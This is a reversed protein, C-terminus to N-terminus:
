PQLCVSQISDPRTLNLRVWLSAAFVWGNNKYPARCLQWEAQTSDLRVWCCSCQLCMTLKNQNSNRRLHWIEQTSDLRNKVWWSVELVCGNTTIPAWCKQSMAYTSDLQPSSLTRMTVGVQNLQFGRLRACDNRWIITIEELSLMIEPGQLNTVCTTIPFDTIVCLKM